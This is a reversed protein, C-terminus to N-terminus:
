TQRPTLDLRTRVNPQWEVGSFANREMKLGVIVFLRDPRVTFQEQGFLSSVPYSRREPDFSILTSGFTCDRNM